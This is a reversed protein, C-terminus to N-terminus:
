AKLRLSRGEGAPQRFMRWDDLRLAALERGWVCGADLAAIGKQVRLGLAAWHGFIETSGASQRDAIAFWPRCGAPAMEPPGSFDPCMRGRADLTRLRALGALAVRARQHSALGERWGEATKENVTALLETAAEGRLRGEVERGLRDVADPTWQPFL